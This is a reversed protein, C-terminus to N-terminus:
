ASNANINLHIFSIFFIDIAQRTTEAQVDYKLVLRLIPVPAM